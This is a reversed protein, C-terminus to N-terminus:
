ESLITPITIKSKTITAITIAAYIKSKNCIIIAWLNECWKKQSIVAYTRRTIRVIRVGKRRTKVIHKFDQAQKRSKLVISSYTKAIREKITLIKVKRKRSNSKSLRVPCMVLNWELSPSSRSSNGLVQASPFRSNIKKNNEWWLQKSYARAICKEFKLYLIM